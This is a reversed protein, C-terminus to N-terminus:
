GHTWTSDMLYRSVRRLTSRSQISSMHRSSRIFSSFLNQSTLIRHPHPIPSLHAPNTWHMRQGVLDTPALIRSSLTSYSFRIRLSSFVMILLCVLPLLHQLGVREQVEIHPSSVFPSVREIVLQVVSKVEHIDDDTWRQAVETAWFGFVKTAAQIYVSIIDPSINSIEPQLILPLLKQPDVLESRLYM